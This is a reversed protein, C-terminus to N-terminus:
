RSSGNSSSRQCLLVGGVPRSVFRADAFRLAGEATLRLPLPCSVRDVRRHRIGAERLLRTEAREWLGSEVDYHGRNRLRELSSRQQNTDRIDWRVSSAAVGLANVLLVIVGIWATGVLGVSRWVGSLRAVLLFAAFALTPVFWLQPAFRALFSDPMVLVSVLSLGSAGLLMWAPRSVVARRRLLMVAFVVTGAFAVVLAGSFLPGFGGYRVGTGRFASWEEASVSFPVKASPDRHESDSAATISRVLREPSSASRLSGSVLRETIDRSHPGLVPYFPGDHRATNTVYPNFGVLVTSVAIVGVFAALRMGLRRWQDRAIVGDLLLGGGVLLVGLVVGTFKANVLLTIGLALPAVVELRPGRWSWLFALLVTSILLSSVAGDVMHTGLEFTVVPNLGLAVAVAWAAVRGLGARRLAGFAILMSALLLAAPVLKTAEFDGGVKM